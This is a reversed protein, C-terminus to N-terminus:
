AHFPESTGYLARHVRGLVAPNLDSRGSDRRRELDESWAHYDALDAASPEYRGPELGPLPLDELAAAALAGLRADLRADDDTTEWFYNDTWSPWDAPDTPDPEVHPIDKECSPVALGDVDVLTVLPATTIQVPHGATTSYSV